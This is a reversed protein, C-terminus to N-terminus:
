PQQFTDLPTPFGSRGVLGSPHSIVNTPYVGVAQTNTTAILGGQQLLAMWESLNVRSWDVQALQAPTFGSCQPSQSSGYGGAVNPQSDRIQEAIIRDLPSAYCCYAYTTELCVGLFSNSCYNGVAHCEKLNKSNQLQYEENKCQTLLHGILVVIQYIAYALMIDSLIGSSLATTPTTGGSGIVPGSYAGGAMQQAGSSAAGFLAHEIGAAAKGYIQEIVADAVKEMAGLMMNQVATFPNPVSGIMNGLTSASSPGNIGVSNLITTAPSRFPSAVINWAATADSSLASYAGETWTGQVMTLIHAEVMPNTAVSYSDYAAKLADALVPTPIPLNCCNNTLWGSGIFTRCTNSTGQFIIPQCNGMAVSTGPACSMNQQMQQLAALATAAQNFSLDQTQLIDHCETGMCRVAASCNTSTAQASPTAGTVTQSPAQTTTSTSGVPQTEYKWSGNTDLLVSGNNMLSLIGAAPGSVNTVTMAIMNVGPQLTVQAEVVGGTSPYTSAGMTGGDNYTAVTSGNIQVTALDDAALYLSVATATSYPSEYSYYLTNSEGSPAGGNAVCGAADGFIWQAGPDPFWTIWNSSLYASLPEVCGPAPNPDPTSTITTAGPLTSTTNANAYATSSSNCNGYVQAFVQPNGTVFPMLANILQQNAPNNEFALTPNSSSYSDITTQGGNTNEWYAYGYGCSSAVQKTTQDNANLNTLATALNSITTTQPGINAATAIPSLGTCAQATQQALSVWTSTMASMQDAAVLNCSPTVQCEMALNKQSQIVLQEAQRYASVAKQAAQSSGLYAPGLLGTSGLFAQMTADCVSKMSALAAPVNSTFAPFAANWNPQQCQPDTMVARQAAAADNVGQGDATGVGGPTYLSQLQAQQGPPAAMFSNVNASGQGSSAASQAGGLFMAGASQGSNAADDFADAVAQQQNLLYLMPGISIVLLREAATSSLIPSVAMWLSMLGAALRKKKGPAMM